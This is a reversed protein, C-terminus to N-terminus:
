KFRPVTCTDSRLTVTKGPSAAATYSLPDALPTANMGDSGLSNGGDWTEIRRCTCAAASTTPSLVRFLCIVHAHRCM